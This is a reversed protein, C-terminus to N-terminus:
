GEIQRAPRVAVGSGQSVARDCGLWRQWLGQAWQTIDTTTTMQWRQYLWEQLPAPPAALAQHYSLPLGSLGVISASLTGALLPLGSIPLASFVSQGVSLHFDGRVLCSQELALSIAQALPQQTSEAIARSRDRLGQITMFDENFNAILSQYFLMAASDTQRYWVLHCDDLGNSGRDFSLLVEPLLSLLSEITDATYLQELAIANITEIQSPHRLKAVMQHCWFPHDIAGEFPKPPELECHWPQYMRPLQGGSVADAMILGLLVARFQHDRFSVMSNKKSDLVGRYEISFKSTCHNGLETQLRRPV